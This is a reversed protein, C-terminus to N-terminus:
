CIVIYVMHFMSDEVKVDKAICAEVISQFVALFHYKYHEATAGDAFSFMGPVWRGLRPSFVTTTILIANPASWFKHAGDTLLGEVPAMYQKIEDKPLLQDQMWTTNFAIVTVKEFAFTCAHIKIYQEHTAKWANFQAFFTHGNESNLAGQIRRLHYRWADPNNAAQALSAAGPKRGNATKPGLLLQIPKKDYYEDALKKVDAQEQPTMHIVQSHRSHNHADGNIYLYMQTSKDSGSRGWTIIYSTSLCKVHYLSGGCSCKQNELQWSIGKHTQPRTVVQCQPQSGNCHCRFVGLCRRVSEWGGYASDAQYSGKRNSGGSNTLSRTAEYQSHDCILGFPGNPWGDWDLFRLKTMAVNGRNQRCHVIPQPDLLTYRTLPAPDTLDM